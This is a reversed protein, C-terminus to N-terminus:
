LTAVSRTKRTDDACRAWRHGGSSHAKQGGGHHYWHEPLVQKRGELLSIEEHVPQRLGCARCLFLRTDHSLAPLIHPLDGAHAVASRVNPLSEQPLLYGTHVEALVPDAEVGRNVIVPSQGGNLIRDITVGPDIM